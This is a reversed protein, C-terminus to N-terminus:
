FTARRKIEENEKENDLTKKTIVQIDNKDIEKRISFPHFINIFGSITIFFIFTQVWTNDAILHIIVNDYKVNIAYFVASPILALSFVLITRKGNYVSKRFNYSQRNLYHTNELYKILNFKFKSIEMEKYIGECFVEKIINTKEEVKMPNNFQIYYKNTKKIFILGCRYWEENILIETNNWFQGIPNWFRNNENRTIKLKIDTLNIIM